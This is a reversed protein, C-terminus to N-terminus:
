DGCDGVRTASAATAWCAGLTDPAYGECDEYAVPVTATRIELDDGVREGSVVGLSRVLCDADHPDDGELELWLTFRAGDGRILGRVSWTSVGATRERLAITGDAGQDSLCVQGGTASGVPVDSDSAVLQGAVTYDGQLDPPAAGGVEDVGGRAMCDLLDHDDIPPEATDGPGVWTEDRPAGGSRFSGGQVACAGLLVFLSLAPRM